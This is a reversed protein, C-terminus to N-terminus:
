SGCPPVLWLATLGFLIAYVFLGSILMGGMAMFRTRGEGLDLLHHASGPREQFTRRWNRLSVLGGFVAVAISVGAIAFLVPRWGGWLPISLPAAHPYCVYGALSSSSLMQTSWVMPAAAIGFLLAAIGVRHRHPAPHTTSIPPPALTDM